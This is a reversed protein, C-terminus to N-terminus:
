NAAGNEPGSEVPFYQGKFYYGKQYPSRVRTESQLSKTRAEEEGAAKKEERIENAIADAVQNVSVKRLHKIFYIDEKHDETPGLHLIMNALAFKLSRADAAVLAGSIIRDSWAEFEARGMPLARMETM